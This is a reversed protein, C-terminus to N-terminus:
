KVKHGGFVESIGIKNLMGDLESVEYDSLLIDASKANEDLRRIKRSGPVPVIYPKKCLMWALAIQAPTSGKQVAVCDPLRFLEANEDFAHPQYQPMDARYDCFLKKMIKNM